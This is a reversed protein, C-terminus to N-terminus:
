IPSLVGLGAVLGSQAGISNWGLSESPRLSARAAKFATDVEMVTGTTNQLQIAM